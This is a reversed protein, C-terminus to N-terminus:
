QSEDLIWHLYPASAEAIPIGIVEPVEYPHLRRILQELEAFRSAATKILLTSESASEIKGKWRYMSRGAPLIQVCAAARQQLLAEALKVATQEDPVTVFAVLAVPEAPVM